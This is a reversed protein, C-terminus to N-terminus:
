FLLTWKSKFLYLQISSNLACKVKITYNIQISLLQHSYHIWTDSYARIFLQDRSLNYIITLSPASKTFKKGISHSGGELLLSSSIM